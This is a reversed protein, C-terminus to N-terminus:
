TFVYSFLCCLMFFIFTQFINRVLSTPNKFSLINKLIIHLPACLKIYFNLFDEHIIM